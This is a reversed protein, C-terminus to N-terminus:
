DDRREGRSCYDEPDRQRQAIYARARYMIMGYAEDTQEDIVVMRNEIMFKVIKETLDRVVYDYPVYREAMLVSSVKKIEYENYKQLFSRKPLVINELYEIRKKAKKYKTRLKM